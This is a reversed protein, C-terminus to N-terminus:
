SKVRNRIKIKIVLGIVIIVLVVVLEGIRVFFALASNTVPVYSKPAAANIKLSSHILNFFADGAAKDTSYSCVIVVGNVTPISFAIFNIPIDEYYIVSVVKVCDRGYQNIFSSQYNEVRASGLEDRFGKDHSSLFKPSNEIKMVEETLKVSAWCLPEGPNIEGSKKLNDFAKNGVVVPNAGPKNILPIIAPDQRYLEGTISLSFAKTVHTEGYASVSFALVAFAVVVRKM